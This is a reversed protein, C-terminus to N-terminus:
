EEEEYDPANRTEDMWEDILDEMQRRVENIFQEPEVKCKAEQTTWYADNLTDMLEQATQYAKKRWDMM